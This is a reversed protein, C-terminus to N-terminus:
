QFYLNHTKNVVAEKIVKEAAKSVKIVTLPASRNNSDQFLESM